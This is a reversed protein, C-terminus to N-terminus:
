DSDSESGSALVAGTSGGRMGKTTEKQRADRDTLRKDRHASQIRQRDREVDEENTYSLQKRKLSQFKSAAAALKESTPAEGSVDEGKDWATSSGEEDDDGFTKKKGFSGAHITAKSLGDSTIKLPKDKRTKVTAPTINAINLKTNQSATHTFLGSSASATAAGSKSKSSGLSSSSSPAVGSASNNSSNSSSSGKPVLFDDDDEEDEVNATSKKNVTAKPQAAREEITLKRKKTRKQQDNLLDDDSDAASTGTAAPETIGAAAMERQRKKEAKAEKIQRKLKDLSRNVNKAKRVESRIGEGEATEEGDAEGDAASSSSAKAAPKASANLVPLPPTFPM